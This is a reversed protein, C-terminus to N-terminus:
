NGGNMLGLSSEEDYSNDTITTRHLEESANRTSKFHANELIRDIYTFNM